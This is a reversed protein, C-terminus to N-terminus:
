RHDSFENGSAMGIRYPRGDPAIVYLGAIEAEEGGDEAYASIELPANHGRLIHGTGKYFWEPAIGVCDPAPRGGEVGWRFMKMSDTVPEDTASPAAIHMAQRGRASGMHTLGTGTVICRAPQEPHDIAPLVRWDSRGEYIPDYDICEDSVHRDVVATLKVGGAIAENALAYVSAADSLLRLKPEEVVAVGRLGNKQLQILRM